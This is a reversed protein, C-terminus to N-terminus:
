YIKTKNWTKGMPKTNENRISDKDKLRTAKCIMWCNDQRHLQENQWCLYEVFYKLWYDWSLIPKHLCNLRVFQSWWIEQIPVFKNCCFVLIKQQVIQLNGFEIDWILALHFLFNDWSYLWNMWHLPIYFKQELDFIRQKCIEFILKRKQVFRDWVFTLGIEVLTSQKWICWVIENIFYGKKQQFTKKLKKFLLYIIQFFICNIKIM